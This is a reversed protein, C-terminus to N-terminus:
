INFEQDSLNDDAEVIGREDLRAITGRYDDFEHLATSPSLKKMTMTSVMEHHLQYYGSSVKENDDNAVEVENSGVLPGWVKFLFFVTRGPFLPGAVFPSELTHIEPLIKRTKKSAYKYVTTAGPDLKRTKYTKKIKFFELFNRNVPDMADACEFYAGHRSNTEDGPVLATIENDDNNNLHALMYNRIRNMIVNSSTYVQGDAYGDDCLNYKPTLCWAKVYCKTDTNNRFRNFQAAFVQTMMDNVDNTGFQEEGQGTSNM